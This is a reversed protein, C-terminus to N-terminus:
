RDEQGEGFDFTQGAGASSRRDIRELELAFVNACYPHFVLVNVYDDDRKAPAWMRLHGTRQRRLDLEVMKGRGLDVHLAKGELPTRSGDERILAAPYRSSTTVQSPEARRAVILASEAEAARRAQSHAYMATALLAVFLVAVTAYSRRLTATPEM